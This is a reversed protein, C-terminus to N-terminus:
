SFSLFSVQFIAATYAYLAGQGSLQLFMIVSLLIALPRMVSSDLLDSLQFKGPVVEENEESEPNDLSNHHHNSNEVFQNHYRLLASPDYNHKVM